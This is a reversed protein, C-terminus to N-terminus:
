LPPFHPRSPEYETVHGQWVSYQQHTGPSIWIWDKPAETMPTSLPLYRWSIELGNGASNQGLFYDTYLGLPLCRLTLDLLLSEPIQNCWNM